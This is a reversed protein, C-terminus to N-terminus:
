FIFYMFDEEILSMDALMGANVIQLITDSFSILNLPILVFFNNSILIFCTVM